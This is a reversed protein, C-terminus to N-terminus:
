GDRGDEQITPALADRGLRNAQRRLDALSAETYVDPTVEMSERKALADFPVAGSRVLDAKKAGGRGAFLRAQEEPTLADFVERGTPRRYRERVGRIVPEWVCRCHAHTRHAAEPDEVGTALALCAGCANASVVRVKGVVRREEVMLDGLARRPADLVEVAVIRTARAQGLRLAESVSRGVAISAKVTFLPTALAQTLSRGDVTDLYPDPQLGRPRTESGTEAAIFAALYADSLYVGQRKANEVTVVAQRLWRAYSTDLDSPDLHALWASAVLQATAQRSALLRSRYANTLHLAELSRPM